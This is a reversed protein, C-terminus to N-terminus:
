VSQLLQHFLSNQKWFPLSEERIRPSLVQRSIEKGFGDAVARCYTLPERFYLARILGIVLRSFIMYAAQSRPYYRRILWITNRTPYYVRRRGPRGALDGRHVIRCRPHYFIKYNRQKVKFSVDIENQYLFFDEPYWGIEAFLRRRVAFGCGVFFPSPAFVGGPPLHWSWQPSGDRNEIHCAILGIQPHSDFTALLLELTEADAPSSDDDLVLVFEGAAQRFAHNYGAIGLNEHLLVTNIDSQRRLYDGTGDTSGNDVAFIETDTRKGALERLIQLTLRTEDVRNYNLFVISLRISESSRSATM